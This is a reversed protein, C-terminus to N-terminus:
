GHIPTTKPWIQVGRRRQYALVMAKCHCKLTTFIEEILLFLSFFLPSKHPNSLWLTLYDHLLKPKMLRVGARRLHLDRQEALTNLMEGLMELSVNLIVMGSAAEQLKDALSSPEQIIKLVVIEISVLAQNL